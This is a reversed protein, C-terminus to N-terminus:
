AEAEQPFEATVPLRDWFWEPCKPISVAVATYTYIKRVHPPRLLTQGRGISAQVYNRELLASSSLVDLYQKWTYAVEPLYAHWHSTSRVLVVVGPSDFVASVSDLIESQDSDHDFGDLDLAPRHLGDECLSSILNYPHDRDPTHLPGGGAESGDNYVGAEAAEGMAPTMKTAVVYPDLMPNYYVRRPSSVYRSDPTRPIPKYSTYGM